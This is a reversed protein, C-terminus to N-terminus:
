IPKHQGLSLVRKVDRALDPDYSRERREKRIQARQELATAKGDAIKRVDIAGPPADDWRGKAISFDPIALHPASIQREASAGCSCPIAPPPPRQLLREATHGCTTCSYDLLIM